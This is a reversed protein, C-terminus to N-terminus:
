SRARFRVANSTLKIFSSGDSSPIRRSVRIQYEASEDLKVLRCLVIEDHIAKGADIHELHFSRTRIVPPAALQKGFETIEVASGDTRVVELQYDREPSQSPVVREHATLNGLVVILMVQNRGSSDPETKIDIGLRTGDQPEGWDSPV